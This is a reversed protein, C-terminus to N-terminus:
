KGVADFAGSEGFASFHERVLVAMGDLDPTRAVYGPADFVTDVSKLVGDSICLPIIGKIQAFVDHKEALTVFHRAARSSFFVVNEVEGSALFELLLPPFDIVADSAYVIYEKLLIDVECLANKFDFAVDKGRFYLFGGRNKEDLSLIEACLDAACPSVKCIRCFGAARLARAVAEGVVFFPYEKLSSPLAPVAHRSTVIVGGPNAKGIDVLSPDFGLFRPFLLPADIVFPLFRKELQTIDVCTHGDVCQNLICDIFSKNDEETRTLVIKGM